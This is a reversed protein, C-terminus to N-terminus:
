HNDLLFVNTKINSAKQRKLNVLGIIIWLFVKPQHSKWQEEEKEEKEEKEKEEDEEEEKWTNKNIVLDIQHAQLIFVNVRLDAKEM